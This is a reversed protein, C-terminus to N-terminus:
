DWHTDWDPDSHEDGSDSAAAQRRSIRGGEGDSDYGDSSSKASTSDGDSSRSSSSDDDSSRSSSSDASDGSSRSDSRAPSSSHSQSRPGRGDTYQWSGNPYLLLGDPRLIVDGPLCVLNREQDPDSCPDSSAESESSSRSRSRPSRSRSRSRSRSGDSSSSSSRPPSSARRAEPKSRLKPRRHMTVKNTRKSKREKAPRAVEKRGRPMNLALWRGTPPAEARSRAATAQLDALAHSASTVRASCILSQPPVGRRERAM